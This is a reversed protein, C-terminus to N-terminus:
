DKLMSVHICLIAKYGVKIAKKWSITV